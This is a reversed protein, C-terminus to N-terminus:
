QIPASAVALNAIMARGCAAVPQFILYCVPPVRGGSGYQTDGTVRGQM